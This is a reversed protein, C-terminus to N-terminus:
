DCDIKGPPEGSGQGLRFRIDRAPWYVAFVKAFITNGLVTGFTRSDVAASRNDGLLFYQENPVTVKEFPETVVDDFKVDNVFVSGDRGEIVDEPGAAVRLVLTRDDADKDPVVEGQETVAAHVAVVEQVEPDRIRYTVGEALVRGDCAPITDAMSASDDPGVPVLIEAFDLVVFVSAAIVFIALARVLWRLM